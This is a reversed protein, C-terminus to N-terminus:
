RPTGKAQRPGTIQAPSRRGPVAELLTRTYEAAPRTFVTRTEGHEVIRGARMVAVEHALRGVM